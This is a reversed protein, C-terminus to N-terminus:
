EEGEGGSTTPPNEAEEQARLFAPRDKERLEGMTKMFEELTPMRGERILRNARRELEEPDFPESEDEPTASEDAEKSEERSDRRFAGDSLDDANRKSM